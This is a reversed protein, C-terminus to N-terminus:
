FFVNSDFIEQLTVHLAGATPFVQAGPTAVRIHNYGLTARALFFALLRKPGSVGSERAGTNLYM